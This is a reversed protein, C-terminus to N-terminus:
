GERRDMDTVNAVSPFLELQTHPLFLASVFEEMFLNGASLELYTMKRALELAEQWATWSLLALEAGKLSTNGAFAYKAAPLDPLLGIEVANPINLYNGFGGAIIIKDIAEIELAVTKLLSQIGAFVAGKSRILNKIDAESIIIDRGTISEAAWALIFEAGEDTHRLRPTAVEQFSGTRDIIGARKLKALCDILGSGCLGAPRGGGIVALEVEYTEPDITLGEIAGNMARMGCTIGSGEFAPGASCACSILWDNNGLVMEGNTGIDIFLALEEKRAIGTFLAGAVIDGGVYSAVAPFLRVPALPNIALGAEIATVPPWEAAAPIYPQLRIYKPNVGLLLHIMTTNGAVVATIVEQAEIGAGALMTVILENITALAAHRLEEQGNDDSTAHIIRSIVDDGYAAQRNYGGNRAIQRGTKLDLLSVAVTTTGLDIALGFSRTSGAPTVRIIDRGERALTVDVQWGAQRLTAPLDRLLTLNLEGERGQEKRLAALLRSADSANETLTPESLSLTITECCPELPYSALSDTLGDALRGKDQLLIQHKSLRSSAPIEIIADGQILTQCALTYGQEKLRLPLHSGEVQVEGQLVKIACRGCTGVGGCTSKLPLGAKQAADMVSSGATVQVQINDPQFTVTFQNM